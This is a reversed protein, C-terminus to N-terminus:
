PHDNQRRHMAEAQARQEGVRDTSTQGLYTPVLSVRPLTAHSGEWVAMM